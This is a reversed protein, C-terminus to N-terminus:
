FLVAKKRKETTDTHKRIKRADATVQWLTADGIRLQRLRHVRRVGPDDLAGAYPLPV